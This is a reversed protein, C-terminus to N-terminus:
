GGGTAEGGYTLLSLNQSIINNVILGDCDSIGGGSSFSTNNSIINNRITAEAGSGNIGGIGNTITFGELICEEKEMGAFSVVAKIQEADIITSEMVSMSLPDSSSRRINKGKFFISEFYIGPSVIIQTGTSASDIAEQITPYDEPVLIGGYICFLPLFLLVSLIMAKKM